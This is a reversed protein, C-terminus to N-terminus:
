CSYGRSDISYECFCDEVIWIFIGFFEICGASGCGRAGRVADRRMACLGAGGLRGGIGGQRAGMREVDVAFGM